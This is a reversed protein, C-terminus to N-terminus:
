IDNHKHIETFINLITNLNEASCPLEVSEYLGCTPCFVYISSGNAKVLPKEMKKINRNLIILDSFFNLVDESLGKGKYHNVVDSRTIFNNEYRLRNSLNETRRSCDKCPKRISNRRKDFWFDSEKKDVGCRTCKILTEV